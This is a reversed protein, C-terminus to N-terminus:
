QIQEEVAVGRMKTCIYLKCATIFGAVKGSSGDFEQPRAVEVQMNPQAFAAVGEAGGLRAQAIIAQLVALQEQQQQVV